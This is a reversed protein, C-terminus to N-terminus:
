VDEQAVKDITNDFYGNEQEVLANEYYVPKTDGYINEHTDYDAPHNSCCKHTELTLPTLGDQISIRAPVCKRPLDLQYITSKVM